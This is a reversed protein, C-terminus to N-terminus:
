HVRAKRFWGENFNIGVNIGLHHEQILGSAKPTLYKYSLSVSVMSRRDVLPLGIGATIGAEYYGSYGGAVSAQPVQLYSNGLSLGLRYRSRNLLSRSRYSPIWEAGMALQWQDQFAAKNDQFAASSWGSYQIDAGLLLKDAIRYTAGIGMMLPMTYNGTRLTDTVGAQRAGTGSLLRHNTTRESSFSVGPSLTAGIVISRGYETLSDLRHEYQAGATLRLGRLMLEESYLSNLAGTSFYTVQRSHATHGFLYAANLGLSLTSLPRGALGVYLQNYNGQGQYTHLSLRDSKDGGLPSTSGFSYGASSMPLLGASMAMRKGLPFMITLYDLNGLTRQDTTSGEHLISTKASVGLDMIFTLSDVATYSAPNLPTTIMADRLGVGIGGMARAGATTAPQLTGYGFRSYPSRDSNNQAYSPLGISGLGLLLALLWSYSSGTRATTRNLM